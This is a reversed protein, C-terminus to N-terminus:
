VTDGDSGQSVQSSTEVSSPVDPIIDDSPLQQTGNREYINIIPAYNSAFIEYTILYNEHDLQVGYNEEIYELSEPYAGEIAYCNIVAKDLAKTMVDLKEDHTSQSTTQLGIIIISIIMAFFVVSM